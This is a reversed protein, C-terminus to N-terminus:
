KDIKVVSLGSPLIDGDRLEALIQTVDERFSEWMPEGEFGVLEEHGEMRCMLRCIREVPGSLNQSM